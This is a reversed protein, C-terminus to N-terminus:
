NSEKQAEIKNRYDNLKKRMQLIHPAITGLGFYRLTSSEAIENTLTLTEKTKTYYYYDGLVQDLSKVRLPYHIVMRAFLDWDVLNRLETDFKGVEALVARTHVAANTDIFNDSLLKAPDYAVVRTKRALVHEKDDRKEVLILNQGSYILVNTGIEGIMASLYDPHWTNDTDLYAIYEGRALDLGHNRAASSGFHDTSIAIIRQDKLQKITDSTEDTSGDDIIILEFNHYSQALVSTIARNIIWARNYTPMIISVLPQDSPITPM